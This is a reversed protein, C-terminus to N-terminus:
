EDVEKVYEYFDRLTILEPINEISIEVNYKSEIEMVLRIQMLSDWSPITKYETELSIASTDVEMISAVFELFEKM